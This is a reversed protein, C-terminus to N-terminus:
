VSGCPVRLAVEDSDDWDPFRDGSTRCKIVAHHIHAVAVKAGGSAFSNIVTNWPPDCIV